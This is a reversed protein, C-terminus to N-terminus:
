EPALNFAHRGVVGRSTKRDQAVDRRHVAILQLAIRSQHGHERLDGREIRGVRDRQTLERARVFRELAPAIEQRRLRAEGLEFLLRRHLRLEMAHHRPAPELLERVHLVRDLSVFLEALCTRSIGFRDRLQFLEIRLPARVLGEVVEDGLFRLREFRSGRPALQPHLHRLERGLTEILPRSRRREVLLYEFLVFARREREVGELLLRLSVLVVRGHGVNELSAHRAGVAIRRAEGHQLLEARDVGIPKVIVGTRHLCPTAHERDLRPVRLRHADKAVTVEGDAVEVPQGIEVRGGFVPFPQDLDDRAGRVLRGIRLHLHLEREARRLDVLLLEARGLACKARVLADETHVVVIRARRFGQHREVLLVLFPHAQRREVLHQEPVRFLVLLLERDELLENVDGPM